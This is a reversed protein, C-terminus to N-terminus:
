RIGGSKKIRFIINALFKNFMLLYIGKVSKYFYKNKKYNPFKDRVNEIAMNVTKDFNNKDKYNSSQRIFSAYLYRVYSYELENYYKNYINKEKYFDIIGNWNDVYCYLRDDFTKTISGGRQVYYYLNEKVFGISKVFPILKYLFEVDEFWVGKKFRIKSDFLSRKYLKNWVSTYMNIMYKKLKKEDFIDVSFTHYVDKILNGHDDVMHLDCEVIDYSKEIAKNYLKELMTNDVYDDSDVFAIYEGKAYKLGYNRADSIGGNKKVYCRVNSYKKVYKDIIKQSNDPSGDNIVLIEIDSLTQNVLSKLCKDIYKEVNYVPVIVSVKIM